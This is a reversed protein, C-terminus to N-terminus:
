NQLARLAFAKKFTKIMPHLMFHWILEFVSVISMGVALSFLGGVQAIFDQITLSHQRKYQQVYPQEFYFNVLAIDKKFADYDPQKQLARKFM